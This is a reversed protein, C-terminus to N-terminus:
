KSREHCEEDCYIHVEDNEIVVYPNDMLTTTRGCYECEVRRNYDNFDM